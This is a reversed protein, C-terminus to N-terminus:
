SNRIVSDKIAKAQAKLRQDDLTRAARSILVGKLASEVREWQQRSKLKMLKIYASRTKKELSRM